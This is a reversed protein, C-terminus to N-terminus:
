TQQRILADAEAYYEDRVQDEDELNAVASAQEVRQFGQRDLRAPHDLLRANHITVRTPQLTGTRQPEGDPRAYTYNVPRVGDDLVYNLEGTVLAPTLDQQQCGMPFEGPFPCSCPSNM